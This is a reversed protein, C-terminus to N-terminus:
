RARRRSRATPIRRSLDSCAGVLVGLQLRGPHLQRRHRLRSSTIGACLGGSFGTACTATSTDSFESRVSGTASSTRRNVPVASAVTTSSPAVKVSCSVEVGSRIGLLDRLGVPQQDEAPLM